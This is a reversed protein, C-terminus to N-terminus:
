GPPELGQRRLVELEQDPEVVGPHALLVVVQAPQEGHELLAAQELVRQDTIVDSWPSSNM